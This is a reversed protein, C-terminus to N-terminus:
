RRIRDMREKLEESVVRRQVREALLPFQGGLASLVRVEFPAVNVEASNRHIATLVAEGVQRPSATRVGAPPKIGTNHFMGADRVFGPQVLSVGVGTGDLDQRLGLTFGRLGFKTASYLANSPSTAKGALSGIMVIHGRGTEIMLPALRHALMIPARLNVELAADIQEAEYSLVTGSAPLAANAVLIDVSGAAEALREVDARDALDAVLSRAGLAEAVPALAGERRGTILLDAGKAKLAQGIARGLGGNAGTLLVRAGKIQM